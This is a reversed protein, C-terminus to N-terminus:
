ATELARSEVAQRGDLKGDSYAQKDDSYSTRYSHTKWDKSRKAYGDEVDKPTVIMLATCQKELVEKIGKVFGKLYANAVGITPRGNAKCKNYYRDAFKNGLQFLFKFTNGAIQADTEHGYFVIFSGKKYVKCCFNDAIVKCLEYKWKSYNGYNTNVPVEEIPEEKKREDDDLDCLEIHYKAMLEQAKLSAAIAENENTNNNALDLLNAIREIVKEKRM